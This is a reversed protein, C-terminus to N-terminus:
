ARTASPRTRSRRKTCCIRLCRPSTRPWTTFSLHHFDPLGVARALFPRRIWAAVVRPLCLRPRSCRCKRRTTSNQSGCARRACTTTRISSCRTTTSDLAVYNSPSTLQSVVDVRTLPCSLVYATPSSRREGRRCWTSSGRLLRSVTVVASTRTPRDCDCIGSGIYSIKLKLLSCRTWLTIIRASVKHLAELENMFPEASIELHVLHGCNKVVAETLTLALIVVRPSADGLRLRLYRISEKLRCDALWVCVGHDADCSHLWM